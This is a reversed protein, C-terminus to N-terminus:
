QQWVISTRPPIKSVMITDGEQIEMVILGLDKGAQMLRVTDQLRKHLFVKLQNLPTLCSIKRKRAPDIVSAFKTALLTENDKVKFAPDVSALIVNKTFPFIPLKDFSRDRSERDRRLPWVSRHM